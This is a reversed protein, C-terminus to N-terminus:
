RAKSFLLLLRPQTHTHSHTLTHTHTHTHTHLHTDSRRRPQKALTHFQPSPERPSMEDATQSEWNGLSATRLFLASSSFSGIVRFSFVSFFLFIGPATQKPGSNNTNLYTPTSPPPTSPLHHTLSQVPNAASVYRRGSEEVWGDGPVPECHCSYM